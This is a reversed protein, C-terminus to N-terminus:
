KPFLFVLRYQEGDVLSAFQTLIRRDSLNSSPSLGASHTNSLLRDLDEQDELIYTVPEPPSDKMGTEILIHIPMTRPKVHDVERLLRISSGLSLGASQLEAVTTSLLDDASLDAAQFARADKENLGATKRAWEFVENKSFITFNDHISSNPVPLSVPRGKSRVQLTCRILQSFDFETDSSEPNFIL